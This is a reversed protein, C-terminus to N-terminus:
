RAYEPRAVAISSRSDCFPLRAQRRAISLMMAMIQMNTSIREVRQLVLHIGLYSVERFFEKLIQSRIRIYWSV